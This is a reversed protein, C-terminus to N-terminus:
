PMMWRTIGFLRSCSGAPFNINNLQADYYANVTPQSMDWDAKDVPKGIQRASSGARVPQCAGRQRLQRGPCHPRLRLGAVERQERDQEHHRPAQGEGAGQDGVDDLRAVPYRAGAGERDRGGDARDTKKGEEGLTEEIFKKGLADPLQADTLDVCRKWRARMEKAGRLTKDFFEFSAQQYAAPLFPISQRVLSWTLYTKVDELPHMLIVSHMARVFPPFAVNLTEMRPAGVDDFFSKWDFTPALSVLEAVTLKHYIKEPTRRSVRDLSGKALETEIALVAAAKKEAEAAPSGLMVFIQKVLAVYKNRIDVSKEDTKLYYDRDPLALGGQDLVPIVQASDKADQESGFRFFAPSGILYMHTVVGTIKKPNSIDAIKNLDSRMAALGKAEITKEDMCAAYYDGIKQELSTRKGQNAAAAELVGKLLTRNREQLADFRGYRSQDAPLPNAAMWGGCAYQYFNVCPDVNRNLAGPDFGPAQQALLATAALCLSVLVRM